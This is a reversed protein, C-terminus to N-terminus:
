GRPKIKEELWNTLDDASEIHVPKGQWAKVTWLILMVIAAVSFVKYGLRALDTINGMGKLVSSIILIGIHAALGQAAHFRVKTESKPVFLLILIGAIMGVYFPIYPLATLINEPLGVKSVARKASADAGTEFQATQFNSPIEQGNFPSSYSSFEAEGFRRTQEETPAVFPFPQTKQANLHPSTEAQMERAKQPFEPDLPNTDYKKKPM